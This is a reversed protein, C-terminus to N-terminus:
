DLSEELFITSLIAFPDLNSKCYWTNARSLCGIGHYRSPQQKEARCSRWAVLNTIVSSNDQSPAPVRNYKTTVSRWRTWSRHVPELARSCILAHAYTSSEPLRKALRALCPTPSRCVTRGESQHPLAILITAPHPSFDEFGPIM